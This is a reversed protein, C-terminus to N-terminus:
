IVIHILVFSLFAGEAERPEEGGEYGYYDLGNKAPSAVASTLGTVDPLHVKSAKPLGKREWAGAALSNAIDNFPNREGKGNGRPKAKRERVTSQALVDGDEDGHRIAAGWVRRQEAEIDRALGRAMKTFKSGATSPTPPQVVVEPQQIVARKSRPKPTPIDNENEHLDFTAQPPSSNSRQYAFTSPGAGHSANQNQNSHARMSHASRPRKPSFTAVRHLAKALKTSRSSSDSDSGSSASEASPRLRAALSSAAAAHGSQLVRDLEVTDDVM